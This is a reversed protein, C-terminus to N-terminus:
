PKAAPQRVDWVRATKDTSVSALRTSDSSFALAMVIGQHRRLRRTAVGSAADILIINHDALGVAVTKGDPSIAICYAQGLSDIHAVSQGSATDLCDLTGWTGVVWLQRGDRTVAMAKPIGAREPFIAQQVGTEADLVRITCDRLKGNEQWGSAVYLRKDDPSFALCRVSDIGQAV